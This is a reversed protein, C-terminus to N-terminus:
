FGRVVGIQIFRASLPALGPSGAGGVRWGSRQEYRELKLDIRWRERLQLAFKLGLTAAGFGSLRADPSLYQPPDSLYGPPFPAGAFSYVPDYYFWAARQSYFRLSPTVQLQPSVQQVWELALTHARIGFSDHSYRYSSRLSSGWGQVHHNWRLLLNAQHRSGPRQDLRKYPDSYEGHGDTITLSAQALDAPSMVQTVGVRWERTQRSRHLDPDDRSGIRDHALGLGLQWSRNNDDSSFSAELSLARSRYDNETSGALGVAWESREDRRSLKFQGARREDSMGSAGSIASHHRPSAGSVSDATAQAEIRWREGLPWQLWLSPSHVQIRKLGPQWDRYDLWRLAILGDGPSAVDAAGEQAPDVSVAESTQACAPMVGPLALAAALVGCWAPSM